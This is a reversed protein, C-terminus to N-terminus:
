PKTREMHQITRDVNVIPQSRHLASPPRLPPTSPPSTSPPSPTYTGPAAPLHVSAPQLPGNEQFLKSAAHKPRPPNDPPTQKDTEVRKDSAATRTAMEELRTHDRVWIVCIRALILRNNENKHESYVQYMTLTCLRFAHGSSHSTGRCNDRNGAVWWTMQVGLSM